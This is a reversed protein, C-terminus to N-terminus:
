FSDPPIWVYTVLVLLAFGVYLASFVWPPFDYFLVQRILRSILPIEEEVQQGAARRAVYEWVTLPCLVGLAGEAGVFGVAVLHLLRFTRNRVIRSVKALLPSVPAPQTVRTPRCEQDWGSPNTSRERDKLAMRRRRYRHDRLLRHELFATSLIFVEGGVCFLVYALHLILIVEPLFSTM